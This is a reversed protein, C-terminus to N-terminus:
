CTKSVCLWLLFRKKMSRCFAHMRALVPKCNEFYHRLVATVTTLIALLNGAASQGCRRQQGPARASASSLCPSARWCVTRELLCNEGASLERRCVTREPQCNEGPSLERRCVTREPLCNEGASLERWSVTREPLCNEGASLERWSVTREPLCNEGPSLERRCVTREPLCNEGASLERWCVTGASLIHQPGDGRHQASLPM